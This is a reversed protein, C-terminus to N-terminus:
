QSTGPASGPRDYPSAPYPQPKHQVPDQPPQGYAAQMRAAAQREIEMRQQQKEMQRQAGRIKGETSAPVVAIFLVGFVGFLLGLWLGEGPMGKRVGILRGAWACLVQVCLVVM